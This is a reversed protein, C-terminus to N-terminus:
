ELPYSKVSADPGAHAGVHRLLCAARAAIEHSFHLKHTNISPSLVLHNLPVTRAFEANGCGRMEVGVVGRDVNHLIPKQDM